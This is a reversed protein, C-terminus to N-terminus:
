TPGEVGGGGGTQGRYMPRPHPPAIQPELRGEPRTQTGGPSGPPGALPTQLGIPPPRLTGRPNAEGAKLSQTLTQRPSAGTYRAHGEASCPDRRLRHAAAICRQATASCEEICLRAWCAVVCDCGGVGEATPRPRPAATDVPPAPSSLAANWAATCTRLEPVAVFQVM